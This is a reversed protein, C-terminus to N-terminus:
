EVMIQPMDPKSVVRVAAPGDSQIVELNVHSPQPIEDATARVLDVRYLCHKYRTSLICWFQGCIIHQLRYAQLPCLPTQSQFHFDHQPLYEDYSAIAM